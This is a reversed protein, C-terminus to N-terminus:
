PNGFVEKPTCGYFKRGDLAVLMPQEEFPDIPLAGCICGNGEPTEVLFSPLSKKFFVHQAIKGQCRNADEWWELPLPIDEIAEDDVPYSLVHTLTTEKSPAIWIFCLTTLLFSLVSTMLLLVSRRNKKRPVTTPESSLEVEELLDGELLDDLSSESSSPHIPEPQPIEVMVDVRPGEEIDADDNLEREEFPTFFQITGDEQHDVVEEHLSAELRDERSLIQDERTEM